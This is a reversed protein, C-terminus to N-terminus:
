GSTCLIQALRLLSIITVGGVARDYLHGLDQRDGTVFYRCRAAIAACLIPVDKEALPVPLAFSISRVVEIGKVLGEFQDSWAPRKRVINRRAEEVALDSTLVHNTQLLLHILKAINSGANSASFLVNADLFVRM